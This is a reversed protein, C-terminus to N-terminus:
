EDELERVRDNLQQQDGAQVKKKEIERQKEEEYISLIAEERTKGKEVLESIRSNLVALPNRYEKSLIDELKKYAADVDPSSMKM